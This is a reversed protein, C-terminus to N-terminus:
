KKKLDTGQKSRTLPPTSPRKEAMWARAILAPQLQAKFKVYNVTPETRDASPRPRAPRAARQPGRSPVTREWLAAGCRPRARRATALRPSTPRPPALHHPATPDPPNGHLSLWWLLADHRAFREEHIECSIETNDATPEPGYVVDPPSPAPRPPAPASVKLDPLAPGPEQM